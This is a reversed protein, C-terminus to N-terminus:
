LLFLLLFVVVLVVTMGGILLSAMGASRSHGRHSLAEHFMGRVPHGKESGEVQPQSQRLAHETIRELAERREDVYIFEHHFGRPKPPSFMGM